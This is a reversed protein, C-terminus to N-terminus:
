LAVIKSKAPAEFQGDAFKRRKSAKLQHDTWDEWSNMFSSFYKIFQPEVDDIRMQDSYNSVALLLKAYQDPTKIQSACRKLGIKKGLKRPYHAYIFEFDFKPVKERM